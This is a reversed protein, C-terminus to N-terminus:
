KLPRILFSLQESGWKILRVFEQITEETQAAVAVISLSGFPRNHPDLLPVSVSLYDRVLEAISTAYGRQRIIKLEEILAQKDTISNPGMKKLEINNLYDEIEEDSFHALIVKASAGYYLDAAQGIYPVIRVSKKSEVCEVCVRQGNALLNVFVTEGSKDRIRELVPRLCKHNTINKYVDSSLILLRLGLSYKLSDLNREVFGAKELTGLLRVLTTKSYGLNRHLDSLSLSRKENYLEELISIAKQLSKIEEMGLVGKM